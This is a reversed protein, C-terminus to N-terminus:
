EEEVKRCTAAALAVLRGGDVADTLPVRVVVDHGIGVPGLVEGSAVLPGSGVRNLYRIELDTVAYRGHRELAREAALEALLVQVGGQVTGRSNGLAPHSEIALASGDLSHAGLLEDFSVAPVPPPAAREGRAGVDILRNMFTLISRAFPRESGEAHIDTEGVFLSRGVKVPRCVAGVEGSGPPTSLLQIRLDVTPNIPGTPPQGAVVDALTALLGIRPRTTGPACMQPRLRMRGRTLGSEVWTEIGLAGVFSGLAETRADTVV